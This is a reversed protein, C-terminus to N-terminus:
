DRRIIRTILDDPIRLLTGDGMRVYNGGNARVIAEHAIQAAKPATKSTVEISDVITGSRDVVFDIRRGSGTAPDIVKRGSSDRLLAENQIRYGASEPYQSRLESAVKAERRLGAAKNEVCDNHVLIGSQGVHYTHWDAVEINYVPVARELREVTAAEVQATGGGQLLLASGSALDAAPTWGKNAVFFPHSPTALIEEGGVAVRVLEGATNSVVQLVTKEAHEGTDPNTSTVTDGAKIKEIAVLGTATAVMTGAVFCVKPMPKMTQYASGSFVALASAAFQFMNYAPNEHLQQNFTTLANSPALIGAGWAALDFAGMGLSLGGSAKAAINVATFIKCSSGFAQGFIQGAGGLGGFLAGTLAGTFAGEELGDLFSGGAALSSLGGMLGGTVAGIILGKAAMLIVAALPGGVGTCVLVVALAVLASTAILKWHKKCWAGV